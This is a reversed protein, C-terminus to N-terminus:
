LLQNWMAVSSHTGVTAAAPVNTVLTLIMLGWQGVLDHFIRLQPSVICAYSSHTKLIQEERKEKKLVTLM